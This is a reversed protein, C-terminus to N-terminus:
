FNVLVCFVLSQHTFASAFTVFETRCMRGVLNGFIVVVTKSLRSIVATDPLEHPADFVQVFTLPRDVDQLALPQDHVSIFNRSLFADKQEPRRFTLVITGSSLRQVCNVDTNDLDANHLAEFVDCAPLFYRPQFSVTLPRNPLVNEGTVPIVDDLVRSVRTASAYSRRLPANGSSSESQINVNNVRDDDVSVSARTADTHSTADAMAFTVPVLM